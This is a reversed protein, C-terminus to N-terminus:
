PKLTFHDRDDLFRFTNRSEELHAKSLTVQLVEERESYALRNGMGDFGASHGNYTLGNPDSGIRNVGLTYAMNEISRARLLTDWAGIRPSPWNAVYLLVDYDMTNRSWVPFRLDYCILPCFTFDRFQIITRETGRQYVRDEGALTFTHRKDYSDFVGGPQMFILRNFYQGNEQFVMSGVVGADTREAQQQMWELTREGEEPAIHGPNMTFGTTFMEPLVILDPHDELGGIKHEFQKRNAEPDEWILEAQILAVKM